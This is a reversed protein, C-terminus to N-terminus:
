APGPTPRPLVRARIFLAVLNLALTLALLVLVTAHLLPRTLDPNPSQTALVFAHYGLDMFQDSLSGPLRAMYYAAGTFLIPAVEGAARSLGLIGGTLVGPLAAPLVVHLVTQLRSAGLAYSADRWGQPVARLSDETAVIVVPLTMVALTCSAWLLCPKSWRPEADPGALATDLTGGVFAVFFGLGFLGFVISPVGALNNVASRILRAATSGPRTYENLYVATIVGAPMVLLTMLFVRAVTGVLMPLIGATAPDFMDGGTGSTLFRPSLASRGEWALHVLIVALLALIIVAAAATLGCFVTSTRQAGRGGSTLRPSPPRNM